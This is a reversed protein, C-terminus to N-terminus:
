LWSHKKQQFNYFEMTHLKLIPTWVTYNARMRNKYIKWNCKSQKLPPKSVTTRADPLSDWCSFGVEAILLNLLHLSFQLSQLGIGPLVFCRREAVKNTDYLVQYM